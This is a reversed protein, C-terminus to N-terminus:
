RASSGPSVSPRPSSTRSARARSRRIREHRLNQALSAIGTVPNGIEHAVGAALRGVSALRNNHALEAELTGLDTLDEILMVVGPPARRVRSVPDAYASKHLNYWRPKGSVALEMRYIHHEASRAFGALLGDWPQPLQNLSTGILPSADLGTMRELALNWLV